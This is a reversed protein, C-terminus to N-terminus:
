EGLGQEALHKTLQEVAIHFALSRRGMPGGHLVVLEFLGVISPSISKRAADFARRAIEQELWKPDLSFVRWGASGGNGDWNVTGCGTEYGATHTALYWDCVRGAARTLTGRNVLQQIKTTRRVTPVREKPPTAEGKHTATSLNPADIAEYDGRDIQAQPMDIARALRALKPERIRRTTKM